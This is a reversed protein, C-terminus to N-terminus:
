PRGNFTIPQCIHRYHFERSASLFLDLQIPTLKVEVAPRVTAPRDWVYECPAHGVAYGGLDCHTVAFVSSWASPSTLSAWM